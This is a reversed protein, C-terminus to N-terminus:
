ISIIENIQPRGETLTGTKDLLALNVKAIRELVDGGKAIVGKNSAMSISISHPIPACILLACPCATVWLLLIVKIRNGDGIISEPIMLAVFM